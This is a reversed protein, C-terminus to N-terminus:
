QFNVKFNGDPLATIVVSTECDIAELARQIGELNGFITTGQPDAAFNMTFM